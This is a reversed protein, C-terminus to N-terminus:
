DSQSRRIRGFENEVERAKDMRGLQRYMLVLNRVMLSATETRVGLQRRCWLLVQEQLAESEHFRGDLRAYAVALYYKLSVTDTDDVGISEELIKIARELIVVVRDDPVKGDGEATMRGYTEALHVICRRTTADQEGLHVKGAEVADQLLRVAEHLRGQSVYDRGTSDMVAITYPHGPGISATCLRLVTEHLQTADTPQNHAFFTDALNCMRILIDMSPSQDATVAHTEPWYARVATELVRRELALGELLRGTQLKIDTALNYMVILTEQATEGYERERITLVEGDLREADHFRSAQRLVHALMLKAQQNETSERPSAPPHHEAEHIMRLLVSEADRWQSRQVLGDIENGIVPIQSLFSMRALQKPRCKLQHAHPLDALGAEVALCM